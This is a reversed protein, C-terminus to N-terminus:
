VQSRRLCQCQPSPHVQRHPEQRTQPLPCAVGSHQVPQRQPEPRVSTHPPVPPDTALASRARMQYGQRHMRARSEARSEARLSGPPLQRSDQRPPQCRRRPRRAQGGPHPAPQLSRYARRQLALHRRYQQRNLLHPDQSTQPMHLPQPPIRPQGPLPRFPNETGFTAELPHFYIGPPAQVLTPHPTFNPCPPAPAPPLHPQLRHGIQQRYYIPCFQTQALMNPNTPAHHVHTSVTQLELCQLCM